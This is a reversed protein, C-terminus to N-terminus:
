TFVELNNSTNPPNKLASFYQKTKNQKKLSQGPKYHGKKPSLIQQGGGSGYSMTGVMTLTCKCGTMWGFACWMPFGQKLIMIM